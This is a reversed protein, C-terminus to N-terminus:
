RRFGSVTWWLALIAGGVLSVAVPPPLQAIGPLAISQPTRFVFAFSWYVLWLATLSILLRIGGQRLNM